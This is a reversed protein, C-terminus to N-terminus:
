VGLTGTGPWHTARPDVVWGNGDLLHRLSLFLDPPLAGSPFWRVESMEHDALVRATGSHYEAEMWLTVYHRAEAEFVDNTVGLFRVNRVEIGTEERTERVACAGPSEGAELHGGPTSWTGDGHVNKRRLLLVDGSRRIVIGVGVRPDRM